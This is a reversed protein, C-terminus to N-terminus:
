IEDEEVLYEGVVKVFTLNRDNSGTLIRMRETDVIWEEGIDPIRGLVGDTIKNEKYTDLAKVVYRTRREKEWNSSEHVLLDSWLDEPAKYTFEPIKEYIDQVKVDKMEFDCIYSNKGNIIGLEKFVPCPTVIVPTGASLAEIVSYCYGENDSLQVLYDANAIYNTIDLRPKM